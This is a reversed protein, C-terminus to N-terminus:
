SAARQPGRQSHLAATIAALARTRAAPDPSSGSADYDRVLGALVENDFSRDTSARRTAMQGPGGSRTGPRARVTRGVPRDLGDARGPQRGRRRETREGLATIACRDDGPDDGVRPAGLEAFFTLWRGLTPVLPEVAYEGTTRRFRTSRGFLSTRRVPSRCWSDGCAATVEMSLSLTPSLEDVLSQVWASLQRRLM